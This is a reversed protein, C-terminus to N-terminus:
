EGYLLMLTAKFADDIPVLDGLEEWRTDGTLETAVKLIRVLIPQGDIIAYVEMHYGMYQESFIMTVTFVGKPCVAKLRNNMAMIMLDCATTQITM